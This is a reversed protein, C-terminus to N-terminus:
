RAPEAQFKERCRDSCFHFTKGEHAVHRTSKESDVTMGCVPDIALEEPGHQHAHGHHAGHTHRHMATEGM